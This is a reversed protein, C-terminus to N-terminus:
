SFLDDSAEIEQLYRRVYNDTIIKELEPYLAVKIDMLPKPEGSQWEIFKGTVKDKRVAREFIERYRRPSVGYFHMFKVSPFSKYRGRDSEEIEISDGHLEAALSKPYPELFIVKDIGAAVIHKACMHCPFTTSFLVASKITRGLRAADCIASMEAHIIRGYELADMFQSKEARHRTKFPISVDSSILDLLEALLERKRKDNSDEQRCFERDDVEDDIWYTGGGGKPVENSGLSIVEGLPSFIAAGVQRSLDLTRLAAAKATFMGYEIKTPSIKNSGFILDCFRFIQNKETTEIIDTNVIFDGDHFIKSVRQGHAETSEHEDLTMIQEAVSRFSSAHGSNKSDAIKKSLFEIRNGRRSYVSVQFFLRGYISRFLEVEEPRKFQDIIYVIKEFTAHALQQRKQIIRAIAFAALASDDDFAGRIQNGYGIHSFYREDLPSEVLPKKPIIYDKLIGFIGTIKVPVVKYGKGSFYETFARTTNTLDTGVPAVLGIFIEPFNLSPITVSM